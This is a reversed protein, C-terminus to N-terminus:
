NALKWVRWNVKKVLNQLTNEVAHGLHMHWLRTTELEKDDNTTTITSGVIMSSQFYYSNNKRTGKMVMIKDLMVKLIKNKM